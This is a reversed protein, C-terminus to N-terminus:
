QLRNRESQFRFAARNKNRDFSFAESAQAATGSTTAKALSAMQAPKM